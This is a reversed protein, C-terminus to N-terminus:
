RKFGHLMMDCHAPLALNLRGKLSKARSASEQLPSSGSVRARVRM